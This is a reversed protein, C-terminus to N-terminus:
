LFSLHTSLRVLMLVLRLNCICFGFTSLAITIVSFYGFYSVSFILSASRYSTKCVIVLFDIQYCNSFYGAFVNCHLLHVPIGHHFHVLRRSFEQLQFNRRTTPCSSSQLRLSATRRELAPNCSSFWYSSKEKPVVPTPLVSSAFAKASYKNSSSFVHSADIHTFVLFAV